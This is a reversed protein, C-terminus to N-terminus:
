LSTLNMRNIAGGLIQRPYVVAGIFIHWCWLNGDVVALGFWTGQQAIDNNQHPRILGVVAIDVV